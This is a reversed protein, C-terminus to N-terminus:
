ERRFGDLKAFGVVLAVVKRTYEAGARNSALRARARSAVEHKMYSAERASALADENLLDRYQLLITQQSVGAVLASM